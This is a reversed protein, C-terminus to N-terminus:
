GQHTMTLIASVRYPLDDALFDALVDAGPCEAVQRMVFLGNTLFFSPPDYHIGNKTSPAIAKASPEGGDSRGDGLLEHRKRWRSAAECRLPHARKASQDRRSGL